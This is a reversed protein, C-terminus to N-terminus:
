KLWTMAKSAYILKSSLEKGEFFDNPLQTLIEKVKIKPNLKIHKELEIIKPISKLKERM